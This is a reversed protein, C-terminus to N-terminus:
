RGSAPGSRPRLVFRESTAVAVPPAGFEQDATLLYGCLRATTRRTVGRVGLSIQLDALGPRVDFFVDRSLPSRRAQRQERALTPECTGRADAYVWIEGVLDASRTVTFALAAKGDRRVTQSVPTSLSLTAARATDAVATAPVSAQRSAPLLPELRQLLQPALTRAFALTMHGAADLNVLVGGLAPYCVAATCILDNLDVVRYRSSGTSRAALVAADPQPIAVDRPAACQPGAPARAAKTAAGVCALQQRAANPTDRLVIVRRVSSPYGKWTRRFADFKRQEVTELSGALLNDSEHAMLVVDIEPHADLWAMTDRYAPACAQQKIGPLEYVAQTMTCGRETFVVGRWGQAEAIQSLVASWAETHSDGILAFQLTARSPSVGVACPAAAPAARMPRCAPPPEVPDYVNPAVSTERDACGAAPDLTAAGVCTPADAPTAPSASDGMLTLCALTLGAVLAPARM